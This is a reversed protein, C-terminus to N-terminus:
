SACQGPWLIVSLSPARPYHSPGSLRTVLPPPRPSACQLLHVSLRCHGHVPLSLVRSHSSHLVSEACTFTELLVRLINYLVLLFFTSHHVSGLGYFELEHGLGPRSSQVVDSFLILYSLLTM